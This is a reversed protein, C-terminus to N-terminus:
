HSIMPLASSLPSVMEMSDEEEKSSESFERSDDDENSKVSSVSSADEGDEEVEGSEFPGRYSSDSSTDWRGM